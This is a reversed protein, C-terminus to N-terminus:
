KGEPDPQWPLFFEKPRTGFSVAPGDAFLFNAGGRHLSWFHHRDCRNDMRGPGFGSPGGCIEGIYGYNILPMEHDPGYHYGWYGNWPALASYWSGAQLSDPPPRESVAITNSAGDTIDSLTIGYDNGMFGPGGRTPGGSVGMYSTFAISLGDRTVLPQFLRGDSPCTYPKIITNLGSHPPNANPDHPHSKMAQATIKGLEENELYPLIQAMWSILIQYEGKEDIIPGSPFRGFHGHYNHLAMGIQRFNNQCHLKHAGDRVNQVAPIIIGLVLGIIGIVILLEVLSFGTRYPHKM